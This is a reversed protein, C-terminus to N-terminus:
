LLHLLRKLREAELHVPLLLEAEPLLDGADAGRPLGRGAARDGNVVAPEAPQTESKKIPFMPACAVTVPPSAVPPSAYAAATPASAMWTNTDLGRPQAAPSPSAPWSRASRSEPTGTKM